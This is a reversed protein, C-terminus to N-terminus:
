PKWGTKEETCRIKSSERHPAETVTHHSLTPERMEGYGGGDCVAYGDQRQRVSLPTLDQETCEMSRTMRRTVWESAQLDENHRIFQNAFSTPLKSFHAYQPLSNHPPPWSSASSNKRRATILRNANWGPILTRQAGSLINKRSIVPTERTKGVPRVLVIRVRIISTTSGPFSVHLNTIEICPDTHAPSSQCVGCDTAPRKLPSSRVV